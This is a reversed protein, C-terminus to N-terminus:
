VRLANMAGLVAAVHAVEHTRYVGTKGLAAFVAFFGEATRYQDEFLTFAHPLAHCVPLGLVRLRFTNIIVQMQHRVRTAPDVLNGYYFGMGPDIVLREVGEARAREIRREFADILGPIPDEALEVDSIERVNRGRVHCLVVTADFEAALAFIEEHHESGTLNVVRAGAGLCARVVAPEYTEASVAIGDAALASVVPLLADLQAAADVRSAKATSSEAGLDIIQAGQAAMVRAKRIAANSSVAVSDRYTSDASLNVTGMIVPESDTDFTRSGIQLPAVPASLADRHRDALDALAALTLM